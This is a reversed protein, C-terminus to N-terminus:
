SQTRFKVLKKVGERIWFKEKQVLYKGKGFIKSWYGKKNKEEALWINENGFIKRRKKEETSWIYDKEM